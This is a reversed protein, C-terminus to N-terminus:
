EADWCCSGSVSLVSLVFVVMMSGGRSWRAYERGQTQFAGNRYGLVVSSLCRRVEGLGRAQMNGLTQGSELTQGSGLTQRGPRNACPCKWGVRCSRKLCIGPSLIRETSGLCFWVDKM